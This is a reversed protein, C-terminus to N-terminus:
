ASSRLYASGLGFLQLLFAGGSEEIAQFHPPYARQRLSLDSANRPRRYCRCLLFKSSSLGYLLLASHESAYWSMSRGLVHHVVAPLSDAGISAGDFPTARTRGGVKGYSM